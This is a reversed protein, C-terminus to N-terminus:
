PDLLSPDAMRVLRVIGEKLGEAGGPWYLAYLPTGACAIGYGGCDFCVLSYTRGDRGHVTFVTEEVRRQSEMAGAMTCFERRLGAHCPTGM